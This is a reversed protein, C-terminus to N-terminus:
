AHSAMFMEFSEYKPTWQLQANSWSGDYLKIKNGDSRGFPPMPLGRYVSAQLAAECIDRRSMPNGDSLLFVQKAVVSKEALLAALCAAAADEYHLLNIVGDPGGAIETTVKTLWYNHAGRQLDYLGALRLVCGGKGLAATEADLLRAIRPNSADGTPSFEWIIHGGDNGYSYFVIHSYSTLPVIRFSQWSLVLIQM